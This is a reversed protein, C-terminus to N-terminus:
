LSFFYKWLILHGANYARVRHRNLRVPVVKPCIRIQHSPIKLPVTRSCRIPTSLPVLRYTHMKLNDQQTKMKIKKEAGMLLTM